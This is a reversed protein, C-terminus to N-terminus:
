FRRVLMLNEGNTSIDWTTKKQDERRRHTRITHAIFIGLMGGGVVDSFWHKSSYMRSLGTAAALTYTPAIVYWHPYQESFVTAAAFAQTTHGSPFSSDYRFPRFSYPHDTHLPRSRGVVYNLGGEIAATWILCEFSLYGTEKSHDNDNKVGEIFFGTGVLPGVVQMGDGFTRFDKSGITNISPFFHDRFTRDLLSSTATLGVAASALWFSQQDVRFPATIVYAGDSVFTKPTRPNLDAANVRVVTPFCLALTLTWRLYRM